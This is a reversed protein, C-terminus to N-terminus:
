VGLVSSYFGLIRHSVKSAMFRDNALQYNHEAITSLLARDSHLKEIKQAIDKVDHQDVFFGNKGDQVIDKIGAIPCTVLAMGFAMAELLATPLGEGFNTPFCFVDGRAMVSVKAQDRVYGVFEVSARLTSSQEIRACIEDEIDGSGAVILQIDLGQDLLIEVAELTELIGKEREFRGLYMVTLSQGSKLRAIKADPDFEKTLDDPVATTEVQVPASIGWSTLKDKFETALVMFFDARGFTARFLWLFNKEIKAAFDHEWGHFLVMCKAGLLKASVVFLMDRIFSRLNLSPNIHVLDPRISVLAKLLRLQDMLPSLKGFSAQAGGIPLYSINFGGEELLPYTSRYYNAVGGLGELSPGVVLVKKSGKNGAGINM